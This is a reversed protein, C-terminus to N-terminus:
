QDLKHDAAPAMHGRSWGSGRYDENKSRFMEPLSADSRFNCKQREAGGKLNWATLHEAVWSPIKKAQDYHLSHNKNYSVLPAQIPVGYKLIQRGREALILHSNLIIWM